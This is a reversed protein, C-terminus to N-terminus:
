AFIVFTWTQDKGQCMVKEKPNLMFVHQSGCFGGSKPKVRSTAESKAPPAITLMIGKHRKM